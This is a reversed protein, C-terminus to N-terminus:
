RVAIIGVFISRADILKLAFLRVAFSLVVAFSLKVVIDILAILRM